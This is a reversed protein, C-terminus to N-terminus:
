KSESFRPHLDSIWPAHFQPIRSPISSRCGAASRRSFSPCGGADSSRSRRSRAGDRPDDRHPNWPPGTAARHHTDDALSQCRVRFGRRAPQQSSCCNGRRDGRDGSPADPSRPDSLGMAFRRKRLHPEPAFGPLVRPFLPKQRDALTSGGRLGALDPENGGAVHSATIGSVALLVLGAFWRMPPWTAIGIRASGGDIWAGLTYCFFALGFVGYVISPVGALNNICIRILSVLWGSKAYERLYLAAMVGFPVGVITMIMTMVITGWIAPFLGGESNAERPNSSVLEWWRDGYVKWKEIASLANPRFGRVIEAMSVEHLPLLSATAGKNETAKSYWLYRTGIAPHKGTWWSGRDGFRGGEWRWLARDAGPIEQSLWSGEQDSELWRDPTTKAEPLSKLQQPISWTVLQENQASLAVELADQITSSEIQGSVLRKLYVEVVRRDEADADPLTAWFGAQLGNWKEVEASRASDLWQLCDELIPALRDALSPDIALQKLLSIGHDIKQHKAAFAGAAQELEGLRPLLNKRHDIEHQRLELRAKEIRSDIRSIAKQLSEGEAVHRHSRQLWSAFRLDFDKGADLWAVLQAPSTEFLRADGSWTTLSGDAQQQCILYGEERRQDIWQVLGNQLSKQQHDELIQRLMSPPATESEAEISKVAELCHSLQQAMSDPFRPAHWVMRTPFAFLRGMKRRELAWANVPRWAEKLDSDSDSVYTFHRNTWEFNGTRLYLRRGSSFDTETAAMPQGDQGIQLTAEGRSREEGQLKGLILEGNNTPVMLLPKPWFNRMGQWALLTLLGVIM